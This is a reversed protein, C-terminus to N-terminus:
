TSIEELTRGSTELAFLTAVLSASLAILAFILFVAGIGRAILYGVIVPGVM